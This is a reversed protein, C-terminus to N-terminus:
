KSSSDRLEAILNELANKMGAFCRRYVEVSGGYPDTVDGSDTFDTMRFCKGTIEPAAATLKRCHADTMGVIVEAADLLERSLPQSRFSELDCGNERMVERAQASAPEGSVAYLGASRARYGSLGLRAARHNFWAEAMPSRCTNGTCIFLVLKEM